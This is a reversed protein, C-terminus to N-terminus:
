LDTHVANGIPDFIALTDTPISEDVPWVNVAPLALFEAFAGPATAGINVTNVCLHRRSARCNRCHGCVIHGEGTVLQGVELGQVGDGLQSIRGVFEHGAILPVPVTRQAWEDWAYIHVDTGCIATKLVRILVTGRVRPLSQSM